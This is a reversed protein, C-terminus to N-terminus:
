REEMKIDFYTAGDGEYSEFSTVKFRTGSRFLVEDEKEGYASIERIDRGTKSKIEFVCRGFENATSVNMSTSLFTDETITENNKLANIYKNLYDKSLTSGRFVVGEYKPMKDLASNLIKAYSQLEKTMVGERLADNIEMYSHRTYKNISLAEVKTLDYKQANDWIRYRNVDSKSAKMVRLANREDEDGLFRNVRNVVEKDKFYPHHSPFVTKDKGPNFRFMEGTAENGSEIAKASDSVPYRSKRVQIATCRCRWGNPPYYKSWFVDSPPLTIMDLAQHDLRVKDDGATRYQLNFEDGDKEIEQWYSAARASQTALLYESELYAKNYTNHVQRVDQFFKSFSKIEGKGDILLDSLERLEAFTKCGSFVYINDRMHQLTANPVKHIIGENAAGQLIDNTESIFPQVNKNGLDDPTITTKKDSYVWRVM